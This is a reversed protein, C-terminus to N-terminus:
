REGKSVAAPLLIELITQSFREATRAAGFAAARLPDFPFPGNGLWVSLGQALSCPRTANTALGLEHERVYQGVLGYDSALVPIGAQAARVLVGSSGVHRQYPMLVLDASAFLSPLEAESVYRDEYIVRVRSRQRCAAVQTALRAHDHPASRGLVVVVLQRQHSEPLMTLAELMQFIGKRASLSGFFLAVRRRSGAEWRTRLAVVSDPAAGIPTVGDPLTILRAQRTKVYPIVYPDLSFLHTVHPNALAAQLLLRKRVRTVTDKLIADADRAYHFTPRFYIGSISVARRLRLGLALSLQVHDMYMCLVHTPALSGITRKLLRGHVLARRVLGGTPAAACISQCAIGTASTRSALDMVDSHLDLFEQSAAVTLRGPMRHAIWYELLLRVYQGHHGGAYLDFVVLHPRTM